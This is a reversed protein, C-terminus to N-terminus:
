KGTLLDIIFQAATKVEPSIGLQLADFSPIPQGNAQAEALVRDYLAQLDADSLTYYALDHELAAQATALTQPDIIGQAAIGNLVEAQQILAGASAPAYDVIMPEYCTIPANSRWVHYVAANYAEQVLDAVTATVEGSAALEDLAAQHDAVMQQGLTDEGSGNSQSAQDRTAQALEGFRQWCWRLRERATAPPTPPLDTPPLPAYCTAIPPGIRCRTMMLSAVSIGFLKIFDRRSISM